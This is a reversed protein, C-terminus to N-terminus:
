QVERSRGQNLHDEKDRLARIVQQERQEMRYGDEPSKEHDHGVLHLIGHVLLRELVDLVPLGAEQAQRRTTETSIVVDGLLDPSIEAYPGEQMPFAIVNTPGARGLYKQNLEAITTDDTLLISLEKEM